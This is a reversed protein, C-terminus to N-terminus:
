HLRLRLHLAAMISVSSTSCPCEGVKKLRVGSSNWLLFFNQMEVRNSLIPNANVRRTGQYLIRANVSHCFTSKTSEEVNWNGHWFHDVNRLMGGWHTSFDEWDTRRRLNETRTYDCFIPIRDTYLMWWKESPSASLFAWGIGLLGTRSM